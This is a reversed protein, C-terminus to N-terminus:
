TGCHKELPMKMKAKTKTTTSFTQITDTPVDEIITVYRSGDDLYEVTIVADSAYVPQIALILVAALIFIITEHTMISNQAEKYLDYYFYTKVSLVVVVVVTIIIIAKTITKRLSIRKCLQPQDLSIIYNYVADKPEEFHSVVDEWTCGLNLEIYETISAKLDKLFVREEKGYVPLM